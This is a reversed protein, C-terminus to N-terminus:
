AIRSHRDPSSVVAELIQSTLREPARTESEEPLVGVHSRGRTKNLRKLEDALREPDPLDLTNDLVGASRRIM